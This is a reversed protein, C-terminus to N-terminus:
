LELKGAYVMQDLYFPEDIKLRGIRAKFNVEKDKLTIEKARPFLYLVVAGQDRDLVEVSSPKMDKKGQRKLAANKKLRDAFKKADGQEMRSPVGYVAIAYHAEDVSPANPEPAKLEAARVPFASEWRLTVDRADGQGGSPGRGRRDDPDNGGPNGGGPYGGGSSGGGTNGGGTRRGIGIGPLSIGIGGIGIGGGRNMGGGQRRQGANSNREIEPKVSKVWPSDALLHKADDQTWEAPKRDKWGQGGAALLLVPVPLLMLIQKKFL